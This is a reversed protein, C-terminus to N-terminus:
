GDRWQFDSRKDIDGGGGVRLHLRRCFDLYRVFSGRLRLRPPFSVPPPPPYSSPFASRSPVAHRAKSNASLFHRASPQLSSSFVLCSNWKAPAAANCTPIAIFTPHGPHPLPQTLTLCRILDAPRNDNYTIPHYPIYSPPHLHIRCHPSALLPYSLCTCDWRLDEFRALEAYLRHSLRLCFRRCLLRPSLPLLSPPILCEGVTHQM